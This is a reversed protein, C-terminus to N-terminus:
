PLMASCAQRGKRRHLRHRSRIRAAGDLALADGARLYAFVHAHDLGSLDRCALLLMLQHCIQAIHEGVLPEYDVVLADFPVSRVLFVEREVQKRPLPEGERQEHADELRVASRSPRLLKDVHPAAAALVSIVRENREAREGLDVADAIVVDVYACVRLLLCLRRECVHPVDQLVGALARLELLAEFPVELM